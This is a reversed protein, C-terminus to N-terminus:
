HQLCLLWGLLDLRQRFPVPNTPPNAAGGGPLFFRDEDYGLEKHPPNCHGRAGQSGEIRATGGDVGLLLRALPSPVSLPNAPAPAM